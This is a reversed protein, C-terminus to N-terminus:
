DHIEEGEIIYLLGKAKDNKIYDSVFSFMRNASIVRLGTETKPRFGSYLGNEWLLEGMANVHTLVGKEIDRVFLGYTRTTENGDWDIYQGTFQKHFRYTVDHIEEIHHYFTMSNQDMLDLVAIKGDLERLMMFPSNPGYGSFNDVDKFLDAKSGIVAFSYIPHGTRVADPHVRGAETLAGMQSSTHRIDFTVGKTFDFNFLPLLLTGSPGIADLFSDLVDGPTITFGQESYRTLTRKMSTHILVTDGSKLGSRRWDKALMQKVM